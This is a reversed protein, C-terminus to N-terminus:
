KPVVPRWWDPAASVVGPSGTLRAALDISPMGPASAVLWWGPGMTLKTPAPLGLGTAWTRVAAEAWTPDLQVIVGGVAARLPAASTPGDRFVPALPTALDARAAVEESTEPGPLLWLRTRGPALLTAGPVPPLPRGGADDRPRFEAVVRPDVWARRVNAGDRWERM